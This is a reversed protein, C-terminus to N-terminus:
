IIELLLRWLPGTDFDKAQCDWLGLLSGLPLPLM